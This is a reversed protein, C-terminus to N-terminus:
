PSSSGSFTQVIVMAAPTLLWLFIAPLELGGFTLMVLILALGRRGSGFLALSGLMAPYAAATLLLSLLFLATAITTMGRLFFEELYHPNVILLFLLLLLPPSALAIAIVSNSRRLSKQANM